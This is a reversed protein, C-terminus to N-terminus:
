LLVYPQFNMTFAVSMFRRHCDCKLLIREIYIIYYPIHHFFCPPPKAALVLNRQVHKALYTHLADYSGQVIYGITLYPALLLHPIHALIDLIVPESPAHHLTQGYALTDLVTALVAVFQYLFVDLTQLIQPTFANVGDAVVEHRHQVPCSGVQLM